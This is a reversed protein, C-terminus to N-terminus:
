AFVKYKKMSLVDIVDKKTVTDNKVKKKISKMLDTMIQLLGNHVEKVASPKITVSKNTTNLVESCINKSVQLPLTFVSGAGEMQTVKFEPRIWAEKVAMDTGNNNDGVTVYHNTQVGFYEAPMLVRGGKMIHSGDLTNVSKYKKMSKHLTNKIYNYVAKNIVDVITIDVDKYGFSRFNKRVQKDTVFIIM